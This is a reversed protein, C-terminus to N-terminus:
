INQDGHSRIYFAPDLCGLQLLIVTIVEIYLSFSDGRRAQQRQLAPKPLNFLTLGALVPLINLKVAKTAKKKIM